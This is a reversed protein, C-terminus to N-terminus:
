KNTKGIQKTQNLNKDQNAKSFPRKVYLVQLTSYINGAVWYLSLAQVQMISFFFMMIPMVYMMMKMTPNNKAEESMGLMSVKQQLVSTIVVIIPLIINLPTEGLGKSDLSTFFFNMTNTGMGYTIPARVVAHYMALFIPMQLFPMICGALMNVNNDKYVKMIEVQMRQRSEPDTKGAYKNQVNKIDPQIAQMKTSNDNSKTYIPFAITRVVITVLIVGLAFYGTQETILEMLWAVPRVFFADWIHGSDKIARAENGGKTYPSCGSLVVLTFMAIFLYKMKSTTKNM